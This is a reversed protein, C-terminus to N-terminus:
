GRKAAKRKERIRVRYYRRHDYCYVYDGADAGCSPCLGEARNQANKANLAAVSAARRCVRCHALAPREKSAHSERVHGCALRLRWKRRVRTLVVVLGLCEAEVVRRLASVAVPPARPPAAHLAPLRAM